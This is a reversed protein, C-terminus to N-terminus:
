SSYFRFFNTVQWPWAARTERTRLSRWKQLAKFLRIGAFGRVWFNLFKHPSGSVMGSVPKMEWCGRRYVFIIVSTINNLLSCEFTFPVQPSIRHFTSSLINCYGPYTKTIM